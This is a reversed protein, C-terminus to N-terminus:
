DLRVSLLKSIGKEEMAFGYLSDCVVMTAKRHTIVIFQMNKAYKQLYESFRNVNAEDLAADIEDLICVPSPNLKLLAFLLCIATLAKEGGSLLSIKQLKKGPPEAVIEIGCEMIDQDNELLLEARGGDFLEQFTEQFYRNIQEFSSKFVKRMEDLLSSILEHLDQEAKNLDDKQTTLTQMREKLEAYDQIANPNVSGLGRMRNKINDVETQASSVDIEERHPLANAYTLQYSDWLRNQATQIGAEVKEINFELRMAKETLESIEKRIETLSQNREILIKNVLDRKAHMDEQQKIIEDMLATRQQQLLTFEKKQIFLNEISQENLRLTEKRSAGAKEIDQKERNLRENDRVLATKEKLLEAISIEADHLKNKMEEIAAANEKYEEELQKYDNNKSETSQEIDQKLATLERIEKIVFAANSDFTEREQILQDAAKKMEYISITLAELKEKGTAIMLENDHLNKRAAEIEAMLSDHEFLKKQLKKENELVENGLHELRQKLEEERRDRSVIGGRNKRISGGTITGGPHYVDGGLTVARFSYQYARMIRIATDSNEVVVTRGLLFDAAKKITKDCSIIESAVGLVGRELLVDREQDSLHRPTLAKLPLFTVRGINNKRLFSIIHKADYEDEVVINQLAAGLCTEMATEYKQPVSIVNAFPGIIRRGIDSHERAAAMLKKVSDIYGDYSNKMDQLIKVSSTCAAFERRATDLANREESIQRIIRNKLFVKENYANLHETGQSESLALDEKLRDLATENKEQQKEIQELRKITEQKLQLINQEKERLAFITSKVDAMKQITEVKDSQVTEIIQMRDKFVSSLSMLQGNTEKAFQRHKEVEQEIQRLRDANKTQSELIASTKAQAEALEQSVRASDKEMNATRESCLRIEGEIHELEAMSGSLKQSLADGAQELQKASQQESNLREAIDKLLLEKQEREEALGEKSQRLKVIREQGKDYNYFFLNLELHKLRESLELYKAADDAQKKLPIIRLQQENLIDEIRILNYRTRELKREAEEKRVRYKMIGSAEEFILRRETSKESLIDDIKGQGIISYGEKGIGTDRFMSLIDKLRCRVNNLYYESEGSRYLKRTVQIESYATNIKSSSNDFILSVECFSRPSRKQTGAFIVDQMVSGRLTKASQEGLVWRVADSVNSKGSGNPGVVGTISGNIHMVTKEPFSKFGTM